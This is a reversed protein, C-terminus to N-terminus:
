GSRDRAALAGHTQNEGRIGARGVSGARGVALSETWIPERKAAGTAIREALAVDLNRRREEVDATGLRCTVTSVCTRSFIFM